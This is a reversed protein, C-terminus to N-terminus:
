WGAPRGVDGKTYDCVGDPFIEELRDQTTADIGIPDYLGSAIADAVTQL